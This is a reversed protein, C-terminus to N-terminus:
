SLGAYRFFMHNRHLSRIQYKSKGVTSTFFSRVENKDKDAHMCDAYLVKPVNQMGPGTCFTFNVNQM